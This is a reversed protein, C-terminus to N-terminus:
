TLCNSHSFILEALCDCSLGLQLSLANSWILGPNLSGVPHIITMGTYNRLYTEPDVRLGAIKANTFSCSFGPACELMGDIEYKPEIKPPEKNGLSVEQAHIPGSM